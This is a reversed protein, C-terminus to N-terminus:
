ATARWLHWWHARRPPAIARRCPVDGGRDVDPRQGLPHAAPCAACAPRRDDPRDMPQGDYSVPGGLQVGLAGAMAAEALGANPSAHKRGDRFLVRVAQLPRQGLLAAALCLLPATLRAPLYNALDDIRAAAWGFHAYREDSIASCRTWRISRGISWRGSRAPSWRMFCRRPSATSPAKPWAKWPRGFSARKTWSRRTEDSSGRWAAAPRAWTAPWWPGSSPWATGRWTGPPLPRTSSLSPFPTPQRPRPWPLWGSPGGSRAASSLM